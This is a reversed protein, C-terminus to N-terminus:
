PRARGGVPRGAEAPAPLAAHAGLLGELRGRLATDMPAARSAATDVHVHMQEGTAALADDRRRHLRHFVHLRKADLGLLQTTVYLGEGVKLEKLYRVHSEATYFMRGSKRFAEDIGVRRYLADMADGFVRGYQFDSM